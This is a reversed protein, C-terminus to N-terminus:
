SKRVLVEPFGAKKLQSKYSSIDSSRLKELTVRYVGKDSAYKLTVPLGRNKLAAVTKEANDRNKFSAIQIKFYNTHDTVTRESQESQRNRGAIKLLDEKRFLPTTEPVPTATKGTKKGTTVSITTVSSPTVSKKGINEPYKVVSIVVRATGSHVMNLKSAAAKSLDIIRGKIFPGRDNIRVRTVKGNDLNKVNLVTNFPLTKHAATMEYTNFIEGNATQRGQYKGGYWSALGKQQWASLPQSVATILLLSTIFIRIM